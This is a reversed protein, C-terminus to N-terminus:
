KHKRFHHIFLHTFTGYYAGDPQQTFLQVSSVLMRPHLAAAATLVTEDM